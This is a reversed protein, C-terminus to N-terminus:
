AVPFMVSVPVGRLVARVAAPVRRDQLLYDRALASPARALRLSGRPICPVGNARVCQGEALQNAPVRVSSFQSGQCRVGPLLVAQVPVELPLNVPPPVHRM